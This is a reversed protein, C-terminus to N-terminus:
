RKRLPRRRLLLAAGSVLLVASSPEPVAVGDLAYQFDRTVGLPEYGGTTRYLKDPQPANLFTSGPDIGDTVSWFPSSHMPTTDESVHLVVWYATDAALSISSGVMGSTYPAVSFPDGLNPTARPLLTIAPFSGISSGPQGGSSTFIEIAISHEIVDPNWLSLTVAYIESPTSGTLFGAAVRNAPSGLPTGLSWDAPEALNSFLAAGHAATSAAVALAFSLILNKMSHHSRRRM